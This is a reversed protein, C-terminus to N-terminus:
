AENKKDEKEVEIVIATGQQNQIVKDGDKFGLKNTLFPELAVYLSGGIKIIKKDAM